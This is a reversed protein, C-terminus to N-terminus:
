FFGRPKGRNGMQRQVAKYSGPMGPGSTCPPRYDRSRGKHCDSVSGKM